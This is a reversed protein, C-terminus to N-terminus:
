RYDKKIGHVINAQKTMGKGQTATALPIKTIGRYAPKGETRAYDKIATIRNCCERIEEQLALLKSIIQSSEFHGV